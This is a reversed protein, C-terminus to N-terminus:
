DFLAFGEDERNAVFVFDGGKDGMAQHEFVTPNFRLTGVLRGGNFCRTEGKALIGGREVGRAHERNAVEGMAGAAPLLEEM